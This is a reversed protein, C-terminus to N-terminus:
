DNMAQWLAHAEVLFLPAPPERSSTNEPASRRDSGHMQIVPQSPAAAHNGTPSTVSGPSTSNRIQDRYQQYSPSHKQTKRDYRPKKKEQFKNHPKGDVHHLFFSIPTLHPLTFFPSHLVYGVVICTNQSLLTTIHFISKTLFLWYCYMYEWLLYMYEIIINYFTSYM